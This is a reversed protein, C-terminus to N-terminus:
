EDACPRAVVVVRRCDPLASRSSAILGHAPVVEAGLLRLGIGTSSARVLHVFSLNPDDSMVPRCGRFTSSSNTVKMPGGSSASIAGGHADILAKSITLGVGSGSRNRDVLGINV